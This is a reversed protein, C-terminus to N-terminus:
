AGMSFFAIGETPFRKRIRGVAAEIEAAGSDSPCYIIILENFEPWVSDGMNPTSYGRGKVGPILTFFLADPIKKLAALVDEELAQSFVIEIRNM